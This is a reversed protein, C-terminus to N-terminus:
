NAQRTVYLLVSILIWVLILTAFPIQFILGTPLFVAIGFSSSLVTVIAGKFLYPLFELLTKM